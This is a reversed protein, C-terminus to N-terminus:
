VAADTHARKIAAKNKAVQTSTAEIESAAKLDQSSAYTDPLITITHRSTRGMTVFSTIGIETFLAKFQSVLDEKVFFTHLTTSHNTQGAVSVGGFNVHRPVCYAFSFQHYNAGAVPMEAFSPSNFRLNAYTPLRLNHILYEYTGFEVNNTTYEVFDDGEELEGTNKNILTIPEESGEGGCREECEYKYITVNRVKQYSDVGKIVVQENGETYEVNIFRYENPICTNLSKYVLAAAAAATSPMQIDILIPKRFYYLASAYDGRYDNDLGLEIEIQVHRDLVEAPFKLTLQFNQPIIPETQYIKSDVIYKAFYEGGDHFRVKKEINPKGLGASTAEVVAAKDLSNLVVEKQFNFM